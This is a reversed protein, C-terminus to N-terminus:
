IGLNSSKEIGIGVIERKGSSKLSKGRFGFVSCATRYSQDPPLPGYRDSAILGFIIQAAKLQM